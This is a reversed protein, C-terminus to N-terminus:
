IIFNIGDLNVLRGWFTFSAYYIIFMSNNNMKCSNVHLIYNSSLM